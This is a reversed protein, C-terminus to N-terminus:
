EPRTVRPPMRFLVALTIFVLIVAPSGTNRTADILCGGGGGGGGGGSGKSGSASSDTATQATSTSYDGAQEATIAEYADVCGGSAVTDLSAAGKDSVASNIVISRLSSYSITPAQSKVMAAIAAVFPASFSTGSIGYAYGNNLDTSTLGMGPAAIDVSTQGYNSFYALEGDSDLAAVAIINDLTYNSPYHSHTDNDQGDNGASAVFLVGHNRAYRIADELSKSYDTFGWSANIISAGQNVAYYIADIADSLSGTTKGNSYKMFKLPMISLNVDWAVGAVGFGNNGLAGIIGCVHTGHGSDDEPAGSSVFNKGTLLIGALDEHDTDVGSDVVAVIVNTGPTTILDWALPLQTDAWLGATYPWDAPTSEAEIIYNPEAYEVDSRGQLEALATETDAVAITVPKADESGALASLSGSIKYKVIVEGPVYDTAFLPSSLIAAALIGIITKVTRNM